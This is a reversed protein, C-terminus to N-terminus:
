LCSKQKGFIKWMLLKEIEEFIVNRPTRFKKSIELQYLNELLQECIAYIWIM